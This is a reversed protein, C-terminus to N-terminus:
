IDQTQQYRTKNTTPNTPVPKTQYRHHKPGIKKKAIFNNPRTKNTDQWVGSAGARYGSGEGVRDGADCADRLGPKGVVVSVYFFRRRCNNKQLPWLLVVGICNHRRRYFLCLSVLSMKRQNFYVTATGVLCLGLNVVDAPHIDHLWTIACNQNKPPHGFM